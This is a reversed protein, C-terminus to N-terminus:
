ASSAAAPAPASRPRIGAAFAVAAAEARTRVGLKEFINAVHFKVTHQSLVLEAAIDRNRHGVAMLRLVELERDRLTGILASASEDAPMANEVHLRLRVRLRTGWGPSSDLELSGGLVEARRRMAVLGGLAAREADFGCGDDAISIVLEDAALSWAIRARAAGAHEVVNLLAARTIWGAADLVVNTVTQGERGSLTRELQVGAAGALDGLDRLLATFAEDARRAHGAMRRRERLEVLARSAVVTAAQVRPRPDGVSGDRLHNLITHLHQAFHDTLERTVRDREAAIGHALSLQGTDTAAASRTRAGLVRALAHLAPEVISGPAPRRDTLVVVITVAASAPDGGAVVTREALDGASAAVWWEADAPHDFTPSTWRSLPAAANSGIIAIADHECHGDLWNHVISATDELGCCSLEASVILASLQDVHAPVPPRRDALVIPADAMRTSFWGAPHDSWLVPQM